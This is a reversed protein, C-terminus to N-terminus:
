RPGRVLEVAGPDPCMGAAAGDGLLRRIANVGREGADITLPTVYMDIYRDVEAPTTGPAFAAAYELSERRRDLSTRVSLELLAAVQNLTGHGFRQDLDRKIANAGLPLPLGGTNTKWWAGLDTLQSLGAAAFTLQADHIILGADHDGRAVSLIVRDFPMETARPAGAGLMLRLVLFATTRQGPIALSWGGTRLRELAADRGLSRLTEARCVLKPGYGDGISAGCSTLAYRDQIHPYTNMSIATVDLDGKEVARRNLAEIDAPVPRFRFRGTDLIPPTLPEAAAGKDRDRPDIKGTLPWWMFVDDADPSHALSLTIPADSPM